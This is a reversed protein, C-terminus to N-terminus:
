GTFLWGITKYFFALFLSTAPYDLTTQLLFLGVVAPKSRQDWQILKARTLLKNVVPSFEGLNDLLRLFVSPTEQDGTRTVVIKNETSFTQFIHRHM